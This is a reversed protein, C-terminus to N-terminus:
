TRWRNPVRKELLPGGARISLEGVIVAVPIDVLAHQKVFLISCCVLILFVFNFAKYGGPIRRCGFTGRWCFYSAMVHLSPCLNNPDDIRYLLRVWRVFFGDGVPDPRAITGPWAVFIVGTLVLAFVYACTFRVAHPRSESFIWIGSVAWSLYSLVYVTIWAPIFPIRLDLPTDLRHLTMRALLPRDANYVILQVAVIVALCVWVYKKGSTSKNM